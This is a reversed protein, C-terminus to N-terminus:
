LLFLCYTKYDYRYISYLSYTGTLSSAMSIGELAEVFASVSRVYLRITSLLQSVDEMGLLHQLAQLLSPEFALLQKSTCELKFLYGQLHLLLVM